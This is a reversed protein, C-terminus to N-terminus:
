LSWNEVKLGPVKRFDRLNRTLVTCDHKLAIAAIRLDLTGIRVRQQRLQDFQMSADLNFDLVQLKSFDTLVGRLRQYAYIIQGTNRAQSIASQWGCVEEQFSIITTFFQTVEFSQMKQLINSYYPETKRQLLALHETDLLFM